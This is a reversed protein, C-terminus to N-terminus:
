PTIFEARKEPTLADIKTGLVEVKTALTNVDKRIFELTASIAETFRDIRANTAIQQQELVNVRYPLNVLPTLSTQMDSFRADSVVIRAARADEIKAIRGSLDGYGIAVGGSFAVIAALQPVNFRLWNIHIGRDSEMDHEKRDNM